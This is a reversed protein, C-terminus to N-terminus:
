KRPKFLKAGKGEEFPLGENGVTLSGDSNINLFDIPALVNVKLINAINQAVCTGNEDAIGTYCSLLRIDQGSFERRGSIIYALTESDLKYEKEYETYYQAGHLAVDLFGDKPQVRSNIYAKRLDEAFIPEKKNIAENIIRSREIKNPIRVSGGGIETSAAVAKRAAAMSDYVKLRDRQPEIGAARSFDNYKIRQSRLNKEIAEIDEAMSPDKLSRMANLQRQTDRIGREMKRQQQAAEYYTYEKDGVTRPAPEKFEPVPDGDFYPYFNHTCNVGKLGTVSGYGTTDKFDPYKKSAKGKYTFVRGQWEAHEPRAGPHADVYVLECETAECNAETIRGALQSCATRATMRAATDIHYKRGSEYDITSLGHSLTKIVDVVAQKYSFVGTGVKLATMDLARQYANLVGTTGFDAGVFATTRTINMLEDHTQKTIAEKIQTLQSPKKLDINHAAWMQLDDNWAMDGAQAIMDDGNEVALRIAENIKDKIETKYQKTNLAVEKKYDEDRNLTKMVEAQIKSTSFGLERMNRAQIEATETYRTTKNIRRAIDNIVEQELGSFLSEIYRSSLIDIQEKSLAM